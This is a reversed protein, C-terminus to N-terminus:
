EETNARSREERDGTGELGGTGTGSTNFSSYRRRNVSPYNSPNSDVVHNIIVKSLM